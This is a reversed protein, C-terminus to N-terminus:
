SVPELAPAAVTEVPLRGPVYPAPHLWRDLMAQLAALKVPKPLYDDMGAALCASRDGDMANATMAIIPCRTAAPGQHDEARRIAVTADFGDMEPMQCDMLILAYSGGTVAAVAERGNSVAMGIYGLKALQMLTLKQNVPNDEAVLIALRPTGSPVPHPGAASPVVTAASPATSCGLPITFSFTSGQGEVSEVAVDGGMLNILRRSIVLGLGTGGFRRTTSGDAQVFPQFLRQRAVESLGIGTDKVAFCLTIEGAASSAVQVTVAVEGEATFKVANSVLNLLVQRLRDPDGRVVAPIGPEFRAHLAISKQRARGVHLDVTSEVLARPAFERVDLDLKGAEIKSFDLIDNLITLLGEASDRVVGAHERQEPTLATALLMETMGIVGHMPTRIEHSMTALFESKARNAAEAAEKARRLELDARTRESIDRDIELVLQQGGLTVLTASSEIPFRTGDKRRNESVFSLTVDGGLERLFAADEEANTARVRLLDISRGIMEERRYGSMVCAMDNCDVIPWEGGPHHPDILFIADAAHEFLVRFREESERLECEAWIRELAGSCHDALAQLFQLDAPTYAYFTYSQITLVGIVADGRRIPVFMLSASPRSTDGFPMMGEVIAVDQEPLLLQAGHQMTRRQRPGPPHGAAPIELQTRQGDILDFDLVAHVLDDEASYLVLSYADWGIHEDTVAAIIQAAAEPTTAASLQQGLASFASARREAHRRETIDRTNLVLGRIRPDHLLNNAVVEMDRWSGDRHRLRLETAPAAGLVRRVASLYDVARQRDDPHVLDLSSLGVREEPAYGLVLRIAPSVYCVTGDAGIIALIDSAHEVLARFSAEDAPLPGAAWPRDISGNPQDQM